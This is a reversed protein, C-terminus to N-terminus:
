TSPGVIMTKSSVAWKQGIIVKVHMEFSELRSQFKVAGNERLPWQDFVM